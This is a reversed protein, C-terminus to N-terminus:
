ASAPYALLVRHMPADLLAARRLGADGFWREYEEIRFSDGGGTALMSVAFLAAFRDQPSRPSGDAIQDVIVLIGGPALAKAARLVLDRAGEPTQLHIINALLILDLGTGWDYATFDCAVGTFRAAVGFQRAQEAALQLIEPVDLGIATLGPYRQLLLHSYLGTGCGIDLMSCHQGGSWGLGDLAGALIDIIPPAWFNIGSVLATYHGVSIQNTQPEGYQNTAGERVRGALDRWARWALQRDYTVKGALSYLQGPILCAHMEDPIRYERDGGPLSYGEVVGYVCLADLLIRTAQQDTGLRRALTGASAPQDALSSFVGLDFAAEIVGPAWIQILAEYVRHAARVSRQGPSDAPLLTYDVLSPATGATDGSLPDIGM